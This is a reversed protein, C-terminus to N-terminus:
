KNALGYVGNDVINWVYSSVNVKANVKSGNSTPREYKVDICRYVKRTIIRVLSVRTLSRTIKVTVKLSLMNVM